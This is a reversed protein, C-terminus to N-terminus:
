CSVNRSNHSRIFSVCSSAVALPNNFITFGYGNARHSICLKPCVTDSSPPVTLTTLFCTVVTERIRHIDETTTTTRNEIWLICNINGISTELHISNRHNSDMILGVVWDRLEDFVIKATSNSSLCQQM